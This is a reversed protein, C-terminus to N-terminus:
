IKNDSEPSNNRRCFYYIMITTAIFVIQVAVQHELLGSYKVIKLTITAFYLNLYIMLFMIQEKKRKNKYMIRM